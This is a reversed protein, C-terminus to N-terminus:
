VNKPNSIKGLLRAKVEFSIAEFNLHYLLIPYHAWQVSLSPSHAWLVTSLM